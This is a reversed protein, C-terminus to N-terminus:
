GYGKVKTREYPCCPSLTDFYSGIRYLNKCKLDGGKIQNCKERQQLFCPLIM